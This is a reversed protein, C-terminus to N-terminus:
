EPVTTYIHTRLEEDSIAEATGALQHCHERLRAFYANIKEDKQPRAARFKRLAGTRDIPTVTSDLRAQLAERMERPTQLSKLYPRIECSYSLSIISAAKSARKKYDRYDLDIPAHEESTIIYDADVARFVHFM